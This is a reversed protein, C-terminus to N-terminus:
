ECITRYTLVLVVLLCEKCTTSGSREGAFVWNRIKREEDEDEDEENHRANGTVRRGSVL